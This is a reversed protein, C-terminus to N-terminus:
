RCNYLWLAELGALRSLGPVTDPSLDIDADTLALFSLGQLRDLGRIAAASTPSGEFDVALSDLNTLLSIHQLSSGTLGGRLELYTLQLLESFISGPIPVPETVETVDASAMSSYDQMTPIAQLLGFTPQMCDVLSLSRLSTLVSVAKLGAILTVEHLLLHTLATVGHLIGPASFGPGLQVRTQLIQLEQLNPLAPFESLLPKPGADIQLSTISSYSSSLHATISPLDPWHSLCMERTVVVAAAAWSKSVVACQLRHQLACGSMISVLASDPLASWDRTM